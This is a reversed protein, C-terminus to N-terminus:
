GSAEEGDSEPADEVPVTEGLLVRRVFADRTERPLRAEDTWVRDAITPTALLHAVMEATPLDRWSARRPERLRTAAEAGEVVAVGEPMNHNGSEDVASLADRVLRDAEANM